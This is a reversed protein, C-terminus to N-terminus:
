VVTKNLKHQLLLGVEFYWHSVILLELLQYTMEPFWPFHAATTEPRSKEHCFDSTYIPLLM